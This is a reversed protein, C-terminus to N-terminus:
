LNRPHQNRIKIKNQFDHIQQEKSTILNKLESNEIQLDENSKKEQSYQNM